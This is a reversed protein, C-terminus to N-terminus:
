RSGQGRVFDYRLMCGEKEEGSERERRQDGKDRRLELELEEEEGGEGGRDRTRREYEGSQDM